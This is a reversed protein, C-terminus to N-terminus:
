KFVVYEDLIDYGLAGKKVRVLVSDADNVAKTDDYKFVLEKEFDFYNFSVLPQRESRHGKGGPMSEKKIIKFKYDKTESGALYYNSAMFIFCALFGWSVFSQCLPYFIKSTLYIKNYHDKILIFSIIGIGFIILMLLYESIVTKRYIFIEFVMAILGLFFSITYFCKWIFEKSIQKV